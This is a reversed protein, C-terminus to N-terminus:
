VHGDRGVTSFETTTRWRHRSPARRVDAILWRPVAEKNPVLARRRYAKIGGDVLVFMVVLCLLLLAIVLPFALDGADRTAVCLALASSVTVAAYAVYRSFLRLRGLVTQHSPIDLRSLLLGPVLLLITVLADATSIPDEGPASGASNGKPGDALAHSLESPGIQLLAALAVVLAVVAFLLRGVSAALSPPDDVFSAYVTAKVPEASQHSPGFSRRSWHTHGANERPDNDVHIDLHLEAQDIQTAWSVLLEPSLKATLDRLDDTTESMESLQWLLEVTRGPTGLEKCLTAADTPLPPPSPFKPLRHTFTRYCARIYGHYAALDSHRRRGLEAARSVIAQLELELVDPAEGRLAEYQRALAHMDGVLLRVAHADNDSTMLLRRVRLEEPVEVTAHYSNVARPIVTEYTVSFEHELSAWSPPRWRRAAYRSGQTDSELAPLVPADYRLVAHDQSADVEVVLLHESSVMELLSLFPNDPTAFLIDVAEHATQRIQVSRSVGPDPVAQHHTTTHPGNEILNALAAEILWSSRYLTHRLRQLEHGPRHADPNSDLWIMFARRLGQGLARVTARHTITTLVAGGADRVQIPAMDTRATRGLPLWISKPKEDTDHPSARLAKRQADTLRALNIDVAVSRTMHTSDVLHLSESMRDVHDLRLALALLNLGLAERYPDSAPPSSPVPTRWIAEHLLTRQQGNRGPDGM